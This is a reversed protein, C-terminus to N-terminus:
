LNRKAKFERMLPGFDHKQTDSLSDYLPRGADAVARLETANKDLHDAMMSMRELPNPPTAAGVRERAQLSRDARAKAADRIATEFAPWKAAQEDTLKLGAKMGALHADLLVSQHQQLAQMQAASPLWPTADSAAWANPALAAVMLGAAAASVLLFKRM